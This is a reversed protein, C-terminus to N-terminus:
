KKPANANPEQSKLKKEVAQIMRNLGAKKSSDPSAELSKKLSALSNQYDKKGFYATGQFLLLDQKQADTLDPIALTKDVAVLVEDYKDARLLEEVDMVALETEYKRKLGAKNDADLTIIEQVWRDINKADPDVANRGMQPASKIAEVLRDLLVAREIGKADQLEAKIKAVAEQHKAIPEFRELMKKIQGAKAGNPAVEIARSLCDVVGIFDGQSFFCDGQAFIADQKQELSVGPLAVIKELTAKAEAIKGQELLQNAEAMLNRVEYKVKLGAKNGVDLAIIEKSWAVIEDADENNLEAYTEIIQDLLKAREVGKAKGLGAKLKVLGDYIKIFQQLHEVYKAPGGAQYGTHAIVNGEADMMLVTPFGHIKYHEQLKENQEKLADSLKKEHPYDLEVLVFNKPAEAKFEEKDFVENKLRICWGCWDSGTFDVLLFKKEKKAKTQAMAFDTMWLSDEGAHLIGSFTFLCALFFGYGLLPHRNFRLM